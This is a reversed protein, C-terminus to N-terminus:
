FKKILFEFQGFEAFWAFVSEGQLQLFANASGELGNAFQGATVFVGFTHFVVSEFAFGEHGVHRAFVALYSYIM